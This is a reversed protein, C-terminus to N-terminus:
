KDRAVHDLASKLDRDPCTVEFASYICVYIYRYVVCYIAGYTPNCRLVVGPAYM